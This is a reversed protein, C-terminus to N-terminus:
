RDHPALRLRRRVAAPTRRSDRPGGPGGARPGDDSGGGVARRPPSSAMPRSTRSNCASRKPGVSMRPSLGFAGCSRTSSLVGGERLIDILDKEFQRVRGKESSELFLETRYKRVEDELKEVLASSMRKEEALRKNAETPGREGELPGESFPLGRRDVGPPRGRGHGRRLPLPEHGGQDRGSAM